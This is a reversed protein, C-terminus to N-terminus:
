MSEPSLRPFLMKAVQDSGPIEDKSEVVVLRHRALEVDTPLETVIAAFEVLDGDPFLITTLVDEDAQSLEAAYVGAAKEDAFTRCHGGSSRVTVRPTTM